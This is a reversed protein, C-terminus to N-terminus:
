SLSNVLNNVSTKVEELMDEVHEGDALRKSLVVGPTAFLVMHLCFKLGSISSPDQTVGTTTATPTTPNPRFSIKTPTIPAQASPSLLRSVASLTRKAANTVGATSAM